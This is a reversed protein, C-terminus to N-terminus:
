LATGVFALISKARHELSLIASKKLAGEELRRCLTKDDKLHKVAQAIESINNPDVLISNNEDLVDWNFPSDSSVVPLGCALAEIVANCCGEALTPLCFINAANYYKPLDKNVVKGKFIINEGELNLDEDSNFYGGAFIMKIGSDNLSNVAALIRDQGKRKIFYGVCIIIFDDKSFGLEERCQDRDLRHFLTLDTGNPFVQCKDSTILGLNAAEDKNKSSVSIIGKITSRFDEWTFGQYPINPKEVASEGTAVFLPIGHEKAYRFVKLASSFFHCYIFDFKIRLKSLQREIAYLEQYSDISLGGLRLKTTIIRPNYVEVKVGPAVEDTYHCPKYEIRKRLYTTLSFGTIVVCQHGMKAWEDVLKKVFVFEMNDKYPYRPAIICINM